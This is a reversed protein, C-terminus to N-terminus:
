FPQMGLERVIARWKKTSDAIFAAFEEPTMPPEPELGTTALRNRFDPRALLGAIRRNLHVVIDRPVVAPAVVGFWTQSDFRPIGLEAFTPLNPLSAVRRPAITAMGKLAGAQTLKQAEGVPTFSLQVTGGVLDQRMHNGGKYPVHTMDVGVTKKFLEGYLHGTTGLGTSGFSLKGPHAKAYAIFEGLSSAPVDKHIALMHSVRVLMHVPAFDKDANYPLSKHLAPNISLAGVGAIGLTYGDPASRAIAEMGINGGAGTRNEVVFPQKLERALEAAVLRALSDTLGAGYPSIIRVPKSPYGAPAQASAPACTAALALAAFFTFAKM